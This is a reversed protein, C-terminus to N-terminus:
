FPSHKLYYANVEVLIINKKIVLSSQFFRPTAFTSMYSESYRLFQIRENLYNKYSYKNLCNCNFILMNKLFSSTDDQFWVDNQSWFPKFFDSLDFHTVKFKNYSDYLCLVWIKKLLNLNFMKIQSIEGFRKM